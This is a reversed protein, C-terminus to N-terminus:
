ALTESVVGAGVTRGGERLAFKLGKELPIASILKFTASINDGPMCMVKAEPDESELEVSGTVDATRFFFQPRYGSVFPKHRGGEERSLAYLQGKFKSFSKTTGPAAIVQGRLIDDRKVGRLLLGVNEGAQGQGMSKKFMEVGARLRARAHRATLQDPLRSSHATRHCGNPLAPVCGHGRHASRTSAHERVPCTRRITCAALKCLSRPKCRAGTVSTKATPKIGVIEIEQGAKVVGSEIRGTAVTGRGPISFVDEVPMLFPKDLARQPDPIHNDVADM